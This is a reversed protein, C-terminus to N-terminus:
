HVQWLVIGLGTLLVGGIGFIVRTSIRMPEGVEQKVGAQPVIGRLANYLCWLGCGLFLYKTM